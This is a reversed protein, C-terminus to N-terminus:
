RLVKLVVMTVDDTGLGGGQFSYMEKLVSHYIEAASQTANRRVADELGKVGFPEGSPSTTETIGDTYLLLVDGPTLDVESLPYEEGPLVGILLGADRLVRFRGTSASYIFPRPHGGNSYRLKPGREDLVGYFASLFSGTHCLEDHMVRNIARFIAGPDLGREVLQRFSSRFSMAILASPCRRSRARRRCSWLASRLTSRCKTASSTVFAAAVTDSM